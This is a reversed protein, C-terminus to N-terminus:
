EMWFEHVRLVSGCGCGCGGVVRADGGGDRKMAPEVYDGIKYLLQEPLDRDDNDRFIRV